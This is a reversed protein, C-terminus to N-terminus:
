EFIARIEFDEKRTLSIKPDKGLNPDSWGKFVAGNNPLAELTIPISGLYIGSWPYDEPTITNIKITGPGDTDLNVRIEKGNVKYFNMFAKRLYAPRKEAHGMFRAIQAGKEVYQHEGKWRERERDVESEIRKTIKKVFGKASEPSMATNLVDCMRNAFLHFFDKNKLLHPLLLVEEEDDGFYYDFIDHDWERWSDMDFSLWRWKGDPTKPRWYRINVEHDHAGCYCEFIWYDIFSLIDMWEQVQRYNNPETMDRSEVFSNLREFHDEDGHSVLMNNESLMDIEDYGHNERIFDIGKREMLTYLGWYRGNLFLSIPRYAQVDVRSNLAHAFEYIIENKIREGSVPNSSIRDGAMDARISLGDFQKVHPKTDWLSYKIKPKGWGKRFRISFSKKPYERTSNGGISVGVYSAFAAPRSHDDPFYEIHGPVEYDDEWNTYIGDEDDYLWYPDMVISIVPITSKENIFYSKTLAESELHNPQSIIARVITNTQILLPKEYKIRNDEDPDAGNLTYFLTSGEPGTLQLRVPSEYFGEQLSFAPHSSIGIASDKADNPQLPSTNRMYIWRTPEAPDRGYSVDNEQSGFHVSDILTKGDSHTLILNEGKRSLKMSVHLPGEDPEEDFWFLKFHGPQITTQRAFGSPIQFKLPKKSNDSFYMGGMNIPTDSGNYIEVWDEDENKEDKIDSINSALIENIRIKKWADDSEKSEAGWCVQLCFASWLVFCIWYRGTIMKQFIDHLFPFRNSQVYSQIPADFGENSLESHSFRYRLEPPLSETEDPSQWQFLLIPNM